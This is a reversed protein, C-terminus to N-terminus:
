PRRALGLQRVGLDLGGAASDLDFGRGDDEVILWVGDHAAELIM